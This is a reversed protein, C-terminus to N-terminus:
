DGDHYEVGHLSPAYDQSGSNAPGSAEPPVKVGYKREFDRRLLWDRVQFTVALLVVIAVGCLLVFVGIYNFPVGEITCCHEMGAGSFVREVVLVAWGSVVVLVVLALLLLGPCPTCKPKPVVPPSISMTGLALHPHVIVSLLGDCVRIRNCFASPKKAFDHDETVAHVFLRKTFLTQRDGSDAPRGTAPM